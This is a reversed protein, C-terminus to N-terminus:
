LKKKFLKTILCVNILLFIPVLHKSTAWGVVYPFIFLMYILISYIDSKDFEKFSLNVLIKKLIILIFIFNLVRNLIHSIMVPNKYQGNEDPFVADKKFNFLIFKIKILTNKIVEQYNNKIFNFNNKKYYYFYDWENDFINDIKSFPILDVSKNPYYNKFELNLIRSLGEQNVSSLSSAIPFKGTKVFGFSGWSLVALSIFFLPLIRKKFSLKNEIIYFFIPCFVSLFFMSSKSLYLIFLLISIPIHRYKYDSILLLFLSPLILSIYSDAFFYNLSTTLNYFNYFYISILSLFFLINGNYNKSKIFFLVSVYYLSFFIINKILLFFYLNLSLLGIFSTVIPLLPMRILYSDIGNYEQVYTGYHFLNHILNGYDFQMNSLIIKKNQDFLYSFKNELIYSFYLSLFSVIVIYIIYIYFYRNNYFKKKYQSNYHM